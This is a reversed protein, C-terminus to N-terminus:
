AGFHIKVLGLPADGRGGAGGWGLPRPHLTRTTLHLKGLGVRARAPCCSALRLVSSHKGAQHEVLRGASM